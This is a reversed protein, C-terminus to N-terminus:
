RGPYMGRLSKMDWQECVKRWRKRSLRDERMEFRPCGEFPLQVLRLNRRWRDNGDVISKYRKYETNMQGSLFSVASKEGVGDIGRVNDSSCGAIAKVDAWQCPSLGYEHSFWQLTRRRGSRPDFVSVSPSIMQWLDADSTVIMAQDGKPLSFLCVSAMVDDAEYGDEWLVNRFGLKFLDEERLRNLQERFRRRRLKDEEPEDEKPKRNQKYRQYIETRRNKGADFCFVFRDTSFLDRWGAVDRLLGFLVATGEGEHEMEAMAYDARHALYPVDLIMWLEPM